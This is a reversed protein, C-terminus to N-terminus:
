EGPAPQQNRPGPYEATPDLVIRGNTEAETQDYPIPSRVSGVVEAGLLPVLAAEVAAAARPLLTPDSEALTGLMTLYGLLRSAAFLQINVGEPASDLVAQLREVTWPGFEDDRNHFLLDLSHQNLRELEEIIKDGLELVQVMHASADFQETVDSTFVKRPM